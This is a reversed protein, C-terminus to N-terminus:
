LGEITGHIPNSGKDVTDYNIPYIANPFIDHITLIM